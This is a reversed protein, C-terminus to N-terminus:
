YLNKMKIFAETAEAVSYPTTAAFAQLSKYAASAGEVSGTATILSANLKDFERQAGVLQSTLAGLSLGAGIGGLANMAMQAARLMGGTADDVARRARAIDRQLRAVNAALEISIQGAVLM